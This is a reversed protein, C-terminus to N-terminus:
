NTVVSRNLHVEFFHFFFFRLFRVYQLFMMRLALLRLLTVPPRLSTGSIRVHLGGDSPRTPTRGLTATLAFSKLNEGRFHDSADIVASAHNPLPPYASSVLHVCYPRM